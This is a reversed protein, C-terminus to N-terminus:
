MFLYLLCSLALRGYEKSCDNKSWDSFELLCIFLFSYVISVINIITMALLLGIGVLHKM